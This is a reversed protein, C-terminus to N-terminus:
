SIDIHNDEITKRQSKSVEHRNNETKNEKLGRSEDKSLKTDLTREKQKEKLRLSKTDLTRQKQKKQNASNKTQKITKINM